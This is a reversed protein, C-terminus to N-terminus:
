AFPTPPGFDAPTILDARFRGDFSHLIAGTGGPAWSLSSRGDPDLVISHSVGPATIAPHAAFTSHCVRHIHGCGIQLPGSHARLLEALRGPTRLGIENMAQIGTDMPPHHLFLLAPRGNLSGLQEALWDCSDASLAGHAAGEVLTDLGLLTLGPLDQRWNVPGQAPMWDRAAFAARMATRSDHNGPVALWPLPSDQMLKSFHAYAAPCGTETLDGSVVIRDVPAIRPLLSALGRLLRRLAAATDLSGQFLQGEPLIHPDSIQLIRTM